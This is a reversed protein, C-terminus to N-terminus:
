LVRALIGALQELDGPTCRAFPSSELTTRVVQERVTSGKETLVLVRSRRDAPNVAREVLGREVLQDTIFSANPANCFLQEALVKLTPPEGAPDIVWLAQATALTLGEEALVAETRNSTLMFIEHNARVVAELGTRSM